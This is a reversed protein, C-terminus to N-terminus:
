TKELTAMTRTGRTLHYTRKRQAIIETIMNLIEIHAIHM